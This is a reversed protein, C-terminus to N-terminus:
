LFFYYFRWLFAMPYGNPLCSTTMSGHFNPRNQNLAFSFNRIINSVWFYPFLVLEPSILRSMLVCALGLTPCSWNDPSTLTRHQCAASTAYTRHFCQMIPLFDFETILDLDTVTLFQHLTKDISPTVRYPLWGFHRSHPAVYQKTLDGYGRIHDDDLIDHLM